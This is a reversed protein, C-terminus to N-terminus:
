RDTDRYGDQMKRFFLLNGRVSPFLFALVPEFIHKKQLFHMHPM